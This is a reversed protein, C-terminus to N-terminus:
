FDDHQEKGKYGNEWFQRAIKKSDLFQCIFVHLLELVGVFIM